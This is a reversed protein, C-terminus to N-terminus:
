VSLLQQRDNHVSLQSIYRRNCNVCRTIIPQLYIPYGPSFRGLIYLESRGLIQHLIFSVYIPYGGRFSLLVLCVYNFCHKKVKIHVILRAATINQCYYITFIHIMFKIPSIIIKNILQCTLCYLIPLIINHKTYVTNLCLYHM